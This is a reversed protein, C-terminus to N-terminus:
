RSMRPTAVRRGPWSGGGVGRGAAQAGRLRATAWAAELAGPGFPVMEAGRGFTAPGTGHRDLLGRAVLENLRNRPGGRAGAILSRKVTGSQNNAIKLSVDAAAPPLPRMDAVWHGDGPPQAWSARGAAACPARWHVLRGERQRVSHSVCVASVSAAPSLVRLGAPPGPPTAVNGGRQGAVGPSPAKSPGGGPSRSAAPPGDRQNGRKEVANDVTGRAARRRGTVTGQRRTM